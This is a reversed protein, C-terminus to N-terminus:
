FIRLVSYLIWVRLRLDITKTTKFQTHNKCGRGGFPANQCHKPVSQSDCSPCQQSAALCGVTCLGVRRCGRFEQGFTLQASTSFSDLIIKFAYLQLVLHFYDEHLFTLAIYALRM